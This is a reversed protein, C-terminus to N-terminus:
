VYVEEGSKDYWGLKSLRFIIPANCSLWGKEFQGSTLIAYQTECYILDGMWLKKCRRCAKWYENLISRLETYSKASFSGAVTLSYVTPLEDSFRTIIRSGPARDASDNAGVGPMGPSAVFSRPLSKFQGDDLEMKLDSPLPTYSM